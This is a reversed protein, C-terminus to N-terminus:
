VWFLVVCMATSMNILIPSRFPSDTSLFCLSSISTRAHLQPMLWLPVVCRPVPAPAPLTLTCSRENVLYRSLDLGLRMFAQQLPLCKGSASSVTRLAPSFGSSYRLIVMLSRMMVETVPPPLPPSSRRVSFTESLKASNLTSYVGCFFSPVPSGDMSIPQSTALFASAAFHRHSRRGRRRRPPQQPLLRRGFRRRRIVPLSLPIPISSQSRPPSGLVARLSRCSCIRLFGEFALNRTNRNWSRATSPRQSRARVWNFTAPSSSAPLRAM